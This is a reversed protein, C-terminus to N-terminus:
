QDLFAPCEYEFQAARFATRHSSDVSLMSLQINKFSFSGSPYFILEPSVFFFNKPSASQLGIAYRPILNLSSLAEM